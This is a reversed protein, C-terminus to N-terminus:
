LNLEGNRTVFGNGFIDRCIQQLRPVTSGHSPTTLIFKIFPRDKITRFTERLMDEAEENLLQNDECAMLLVYPTAISLMVTNLDVLEKVNVCPKLTLINYQVEILCSTEQLVQYVKNLGTREEGDVMQVQLVQLHDSILFETLCFDDPKLKLPSQKVQEVLYSRTQLDYIDNRIEYSSLAIKTKKKIEPFLQLLRKVYPVLAQLTSGDPCSITDKEIEFCLLTGEAQEQAQKNIMASFLEKPKFREPSQRLLQYDQLFQCEEKSFVSLSSVRGDYTKTQYRLPHYGGRRFIEHHIDPHYNNLHQAWEFFRKYENEYVSGSSVPWDIVVHVKLKGKEDKCVQGTEPDFAREIKDMSQTAQNYLTTHKELWGMDSLDTFIRYVTGVHKNCTNIRNPATLYTTIDLQKLTITRGDLRVDFTDKMQSLMCKCGPSNFVVTHPHYCYRENNNKLFINGETKLYETTFTTIQALWGGTSHGTFFLQFSVGNILNVERLVEVVKHAFTSASDMQRVYHNHRVGKVNTWLTGFINLYTGRHSIVVQQHEPHWYAAGFYGNIMSSNSATTLLRWGDPLASRTEYQADTEGRQYDRYAMLAFQALVHPTPFPPIATLQSLPTIHKHRYFDNITQKFNEHSLRLNEDVSLKGSFPPFAIQRAPHYNHTMLRERASDQLDAWESASM